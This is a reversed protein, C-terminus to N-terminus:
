GWWNVFGHVVLPRGRLEADNQGWDTTICVLPTPGPLRTPHCSSPGSVLLDAGGSVRSAGVWPKYRVACHMDAKGVAAAESWLSPQFRTHGTVSKQDRLPSLDLMGPHQAQQHQQSCRSVDRSPRPPQPGVDLDSESGTIHGLAPERLKSPRERLKKGEGPTNDRPHMGYKPCLGVMWSPGKPLRGNVQVPAQSNGWCKTMRVLAQSSSLFIRPEAQYPKILVQLHHIGKYRVSLGLSM